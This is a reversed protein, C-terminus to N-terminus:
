SQVEDDDAHAIFLQAASYRNQVSEAARKLAVFCISLDLVEVADKFALTAGEFPIRQQPQNEYSKEQPTPKCKNALHPRSTNIACRKAASLAAENRGRLAAPKSSGDVDAALM